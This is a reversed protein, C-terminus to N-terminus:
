HSRLAQPRGESLAKDSESQDSTGENTDYELMKRKGKEKHTLRRKPKMRPSRMASDEDSTTKEISRDNQSPEEIPGSLWFSILSEEQTGIEEEITNALM